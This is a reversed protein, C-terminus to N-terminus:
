CGGQPGRPTWSAGLYSLGAKRGKEEESVSWFEKKRVGERLGLFLDQPLPEPTVQSALGKTFGMDTRFNRM